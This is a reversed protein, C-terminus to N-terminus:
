PHTELQCFWDDKQRIFREYLSKAQDKNPCVLRLGLIDEISHEIESTTNLGERLCKNWLSDLSKIRFTLLSSNFIIKAEGELNDRAFIELSHKVDSMARVYYPEMKVYYEALTERRIRGM